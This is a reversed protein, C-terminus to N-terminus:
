ATILSDAITPAGSSPFRLGLQGIGFSEQFMQQFLGFVQSLAVTWADVLTPNGSANMKTNGSCFSYLAGGNFMPLSGGLCPTMLSLSMRGIYVSAGSTIATTPTAIRLRVVSPPNKPLRFVGQVNHWLTDVIASLTTTITNPTGADDNIVVGAATTLSLTLVGAATSGSNMRVWCNVAFPTDPFASINFQTGGAGLTTSPATNFVQYLSTKTLGADGTIQLFGGNYGYNGDGTYSFSALGGTGQFFNVGAVGVDTIFNDPVNSNASQSFDSNQLLNAGGSSNSITGDVATITTNTMGQGFYTAAAWRYDLTSPAVPLGTVTIGESGAVAGGTFSDQSCTFTLTDAPMYQQLVGDGSKVTVISVGNGVPTVGTLATQAGITPASANFSDSTNVIQGALYAIAQPLTTISALNSAAADINCVDVLVNAAYTGLAQVQGLLAQQFASSGATNGFLQPLQQALNYQAPGGTVAMQVQLANARTILNAAALVNTQAAGGAMAQADLIAGFIKGLKLAIGGPSTILEITM